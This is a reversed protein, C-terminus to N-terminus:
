FIFRNLFIFEDGIVCNCDWNCLGKGKGRKNGWDGVKKESFHYILLILLCRERKGKQITSYSDDKRQHIGIGKNMPKLPEM